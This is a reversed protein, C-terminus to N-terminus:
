LPTRMTHIVPLLSIRKYAYVELAQLASTVVTANDRHRELSDLILKHGGQLVVTAAAYSDLLFLTM